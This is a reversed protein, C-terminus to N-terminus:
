LKPSLYHGLFCPSLHTIFSQFHLCVTYVDCQPRSQLRFLQTRVPIMCTQGWPSSIPLSAKPPLQSPTSGEQSHTHTHTPHPSHISSFVLPNLSVHPLIYPGWSQQRGRREEGTGKKRVITLVRWGQEMVSALGSIRKQSQLWM